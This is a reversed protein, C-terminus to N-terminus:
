KLTCNTTYTANNLPCNICDRHPNTCDQWTRCASNTTIYPSWPYPFPYPTPISPPIYPVYNIEQQGQLEKLALLEALTKKDLLMYKEVLSNFNEQEQSPANYTFSTTTTEQAM